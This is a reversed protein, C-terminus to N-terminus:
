IATQAWAIWNDLTLQRYRLPDIDLWFADHEQNTLELGADKLATIMEYKDLLGACPWSHCSIHSRENPM